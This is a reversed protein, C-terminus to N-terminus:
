EGGGAEKKLKELEELALDFSYEEIHNVLQATGEIAKLEDAYKSCKTSNERLLPELEDFLNQIKKKDTVKPKKTRKETTLLPALERYTKELEKKIMNKLEDSVHEQNNLAKEAAAAAEVLREAGIQAANSKLTHALRHATKTDGSNIADILDDYSTKNSKLFNIKLKQKTKNEEEVQKSKDITSYSDVPIFKVLCRWLDNATFPKGLTDSMGNRKYHEVDNSMINATLAVIPTKVGMETIKMSAELGDMVPMHIDMFILSFPEKKDKIRQAVFDVGEKGNHAVFAKLGVRMLHDCIVQQNLNNDECVLVEGKFNPKEFSNIVIKESLADSTDDILEFTIEFSFRSGIGPVSEVILTGGMLEIINKTITLGLGTGGFKRTISEDAQKFPEFVREIQESSMGIGSDKVEFNITVHEDDKNVLSAILKVTGVNTFKVANSLLNTIVQRLRIPDGLLKKGVSPEAYCYLMIGKEETKPIFVSQCHSFIDPLDFPTKELEIKGSEIKSIDLIDNIIKLLWQASEQINYLYERTKLPIDGYQALESFGIISNMPTRIEHSMNALFISKTKSAAEATERAFREQQTKELEALYAKQERLDRTYGIVYDDSDLAVRVLTVEAPLPINGNPIQHMWEFICYGEDFAKHVLEAAKEDSRQGDPQYEPSCTTIFKEVYEQKDKFGYLKVAAENCGVTNLNKDWIQICLPTADIMVSMRKNAEIMQTNQQNIQENAASLEAEREQLRTMTSEFRQKIAESIFIALLICAVLVGLTIMAGNLIFSFVKATDEATFYGVSMIGVVVDNVGFLPAYYALINEGFLPINGLFTEGSLVAESIHAAIKTGLAYDGDENLVTSAVREDGRFFTIECGTLDRLKYVFDQSSLIFGLSVAGILNGNEDYVPAGASAALPITIGQMIFTDVRGSLAAAMHPLAANSDGYNDPDHTRTLVIGDKDTIVCYDVLALDKLMLATEATRERDESKLADILDHNTSMTFAALFAKGRLYNLEQEVVNVAVDIKDRMSHNLENNFLLVSSVLVALCCVITLTIM